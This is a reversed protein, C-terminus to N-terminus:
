AKGEAKAIAAHTKQYQDGIGCGQLCVLANKLAELLDPAASILQADEIPFIQLYDQLSNPRHLIAGGSSTEKLSWPTHKNM